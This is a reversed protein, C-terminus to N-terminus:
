YTIEVKSIQEDYHDWARGKRPKIGKEFAKQKILEELEYEYVIIEEIQNQDNKVQGIIKIGM